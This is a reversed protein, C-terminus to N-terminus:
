KLLWRFADQMFAQCQYDQVGEWSTMYLSTMGDGMVIIKGGNPAEKFTGFPHADSRDNFCFPTGGTVTRAGHYSLKLRKETILGPTTHGGALSDPSEGGFQIGFPSIIDNVGTQELTSWSDQDMVLFLSGGSTIFKSIASVEGPTYKASPIHIFLLDCGKLDKPQIEAKLYSLRADVATATKILEGTMYKVREITNVNMGPMDAPDRWFRPQHAVDMCIGYKAPPPTQAQAGAGVVLSFLLTLLTTPQM